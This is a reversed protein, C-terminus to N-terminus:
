GWTLRGICLGRATTIFVNRSAEGPAKKDATDLMSDDPPALLFQM